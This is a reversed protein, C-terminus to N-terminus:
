ASAPAPIVSGELDTGSELIKALAVMASDSGQAVGKQYLDIAMKLDRDVGTGYQYCLGLRYYADVCGHALAESVV